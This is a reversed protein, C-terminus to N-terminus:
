PTEKPDYYRNILESAQAEWEQSVRYTPDNMSKDLLRIADRLIFRVEISPLDSLNGLALLRSQEKKDLKIGHNIYAALGIMIILLLGGGILVNM